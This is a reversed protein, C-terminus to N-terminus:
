KGQRKLADYLVSIPCTPKHFYEGVIKRCIQSDPSGCCMECMDSNHIQENEVYKEACHYEIKSLAELPTM